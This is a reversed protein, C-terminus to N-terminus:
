HVFESNLLSWIGECDDRQIQCVIEFRKSDQHENTPMAVLLFLCSVSVERRRAGESLPILFDSSSKYSSNGRLKTCFHHISLFCHGGPARLRKKLEICRGTTSASLAFPM